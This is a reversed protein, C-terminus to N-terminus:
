MWIRRKRILEMQDRDGYLMSHVDRTLLLKSDQALTIGQTRGTGGAEDGALTGSATGLSHKVYGGYKVLIILVDALGFLM